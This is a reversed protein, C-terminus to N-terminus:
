SAVTSAPVAAADAKSALDEAVTGVQEVETAVTTTVKEGSAADTEITSAVSAIEKDITAGTAGPELVSVVEEADTAIAPTASAVHAIVGGVKGLVSEMNKVMDAVAVHYGSGVAWQKIALLETELEAAKAKLGQYAEEAIQFM